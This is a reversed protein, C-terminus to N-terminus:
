RCCAEDFLNCRQRGVSSPQSILRSIVSLSHVTNGLALSLAVGAHFRGIRNMFYSVSAPSPAFSDASRIVCAHDKMIGEFSRACSETEWTRNHRGGYTRSFPQFRGLHKFPHRYLTFHGYWTKDTTFHSQSPFSRNPLNGQSGSIGRM